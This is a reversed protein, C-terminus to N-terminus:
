HGGQHMKLLTALEQRLDQRPVIRDIFGNELVTEARQFGEPLPQRITEQIVRKGAFGVVSRPEALTIDAQMAFSATVGGTTPDTLVVLYLLGAQDHQAVAGSVKAMQMLSHIGEQMRAGGSATFILVPLRKETAREFLRTIKEGVVRGMSAMIFDADMIALAVDQGHIKAQGTVVAEELGTKRQAQRIKEEYEPFDNVNETKLGMDWAQFSGSDITIRLRSEVDLRFSYHCHPCVKVDGLDRSYIMESCDPCKVFMGEPVNPSRRKETKKEQQIPIYPRKNFLASM